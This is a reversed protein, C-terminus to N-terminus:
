ESASSRWRQLAARAARQAEPDLPETQQPDVPGIWLEEATYTDTQMSTDIDGGASVREAAGLASEVATAMGEEREAIIALDSERITEALADLLSAADAMIEQDHLAQGHLLWRAFELEARLRARLMIARDPGRGAAEAYASHVDAAAQPASSLWALDVAPDDIRLGHWGMIATVSPIGAADDTYVFSTAAAGGLTVRSEFQWLADDDSAGRWRVILRAPVSGTAAARDIITRLEGRSEAASRSVLGAARVVQAPLAHVAALAKGVSPATGPGWPLHAAEILYGPMLDTVLGRSDGVLTEGLYSPARFPLMARAGATLARLALAEAALEAAAQDDAAVRLVVEEGGALTAVVSDFRGEGEDSLPRVGTVEAGPLAATVAAALTFPSRAMGLAYIPRRASEGM